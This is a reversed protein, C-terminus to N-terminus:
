MHYSLDQNCCYAHKSKVQYSVAVQCSSTCCRVHAFAASLMRCLEATDSGGKSSHLGPLIEGENAAAATTVIDLTLTDDSSHVISVGSLAAVLSLM